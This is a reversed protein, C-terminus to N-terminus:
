RSPHIGVDSDGAGAAGASDYMRSIGAAPDDEDDIFHLVALMLVAVPEGSDLLALVEPDSLIRDARQLYKEGM